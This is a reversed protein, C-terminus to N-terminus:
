KVQAPVTLTVKLASLKEGIAAAQAFLANADAIAKPGQVKSDNYARLVSDTIGISGMLGNKAQSIRAMISPQVGPQPAGGRGAAAAFKPMLTGAEKSLSEVSTKLELAIDARGELEKKIETLRTNLPRLGNSAETAKRQLQHMEMAMDFMRRREIDSLAVEPDGVVRLPKADVQKGDVVLAVTYTGPLM